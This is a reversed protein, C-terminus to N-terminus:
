SRRIRIGGGSSKTYCKILHRVSSFRDADITMVGGCTDTQKINAGGAAFQVSYSDLSLSQVRANSENTFPTIEGQLLQHALIITAEIIERPIECCGACGGTCSNYADQRPWALYQTHTNQCGSWSIMDSLMRSATNLAQELRKDEPECDLKPFFNLDIFGHYEEKSAFSTANGACQGREVILPM